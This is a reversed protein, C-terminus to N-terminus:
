ARESGETVGGRVGLPTMYGGEDDLLVWDTGHLLVEVLGPQQWSSVLFGQQLSVKRQSEVISHCGTTGSGCLALLNSPLSLAM